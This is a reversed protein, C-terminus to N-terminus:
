LREVTITGPIIQEDYEPTYNTRSIESNNIAYNMVRVDQILDSAEMIRQILQNYVITDGPLLSNLYMLIAMEVRSNAERTELLTGSKMVLGVKIGLTLYTPTTVYLRVGAPRTKDLANIVNRRVTAPIENNEPILLLEVTGLGYRSNKFTVDRVGQVNLAAFRLAVNTGGADVRIGNIIRTRYNEDSEYGAVASIQKSNTCKVTTGAPSTFNHLTLSDQGVTIGVPASVPTISAYVKKRGAPISVNSVVKYQIQSGPYSGDNSYVKTDAPITINSHYPMDLYFHFVGSNAEVVNIENLQRRSVGYLLGIRDLAFGSAKSILTQSINFEMLSYLDGIENTIVETLARAVSGPSTATVATQTELKSIASQLIESKTKRLNIAM